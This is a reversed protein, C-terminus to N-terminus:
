LICQFAFTGSERKLHLQLGSCQLKILFSIRVCINEQSNQLVGRTVAEKDLVCQINFSNFVTRNCFDIVLQFYQLILLYDIM